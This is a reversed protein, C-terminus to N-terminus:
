IASMYIYQCSQWSNPIASPPPSLFYVKKENHWSMVDINVMKKHVNNPNVSYTETDEYYTNFNNKFDYAENTKWKGLINNHMYTYMKAWASSDKNKLKEVLM